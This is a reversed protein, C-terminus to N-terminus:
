KVENRWGFVSDALFRVIKPGTYVISEDNFVVGKRCKTEFDLVRNAGPMKVVKM